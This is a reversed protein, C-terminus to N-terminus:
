CVGAAVRAKLEEGKLRLDQRVICQDIFADFITGLRRRKMNIQISNVKVEKM